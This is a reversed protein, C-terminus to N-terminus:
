SPHRTLLSLRDHVAQLDETQLNVYRRTMELTSHGLMRQLRFVDGGNRIYNVAFTHRMTHPSFRVGQVGACDALLKMDRQINRSTIATGNRTSFVLEHRQKKRWLFLVKRCELSFPVIRHKGGKGAVTILLNEFDVKEWRLSLAEACRLGSDLLLLTLTHARAQNRGRPRFQLIRNVQESSLTTLVKQEEKLRPIHIHTCQPSCKDGQGDRWHLFANICRLYTNISTNSNTEKLKAIREILGAKSDLAGDFAKFSSKYWDITKPSVGKLYTREKIFEQTHDSM